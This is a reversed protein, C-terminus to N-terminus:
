REGRANLWTRYTEPNELKDEIPGPNNRYIQPEIHSPFDTAGMSKALDFITEPSLLSAYDIEYAPGDGNMLNYLRAYFKEVRAEYHEFDDPEFVIKASKRLAPDLLRHQNTIQTIQHSVYSELPNRRLVIKSCDTDQAVQELVGPRLAGYLLRFGPLKGPHSSKLEELFELPAANKQERTWGLLGPFLEPVRPQNKLFIEGFCVFDPFQSLLNELLQSGSRQVGLIAFYKRRLMDARDSENSVPM